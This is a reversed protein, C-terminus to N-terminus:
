ARGWLRDDMYELSNAEVWPGVVHLNEGNPALLCEACIAEALAQSSAMVLPGPYMDGEHDCFETRWPTDPRLAAQM